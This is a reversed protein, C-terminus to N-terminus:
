EQPVFEQEAELWDDLEYGPVFGRREAKFYALKAIGDDFYPLQIVVVIDEPNLRYKKKERESVMAM